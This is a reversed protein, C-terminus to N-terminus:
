AANAYLSFEGHYRLSAAKYAEHAAEETKFRGLYFRKGNAKINAQFPSPSALDEEGGFVHGGTVLL